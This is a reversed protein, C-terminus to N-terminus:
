QPLWIGAKGPWVTLLGNNLDRSRSKSRAHRKCVCRKAKRGKKQCDLPEEYENARNVVMESRYFGSDTTSSSTSHKEVDIVYRTDPPRRYESKARRARPKYPEPPIKYEPPIATVNYPHVPPRGFMSSDVSFKKVPQPHRAPSKSYRPQCMPCPRLPDPPPPPPPPSSSEERQRRILSASLRQRQSPSRKKGRRRQRWRGREPPLPPAPTGSTTTSLLVTASEQDCGLRCPGFTAGSPMAADCIDTQDRCAVYKDSLKRSQSRRLKRLDRSPPPPRHQEDRSANSRRKNNPYLNEQSECLRCVNVENQHCALSPM